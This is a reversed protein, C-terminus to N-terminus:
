PGPCSTGGNPHKGDEQSGRGEGLGQATGFRRRLREVRDAKEGFPHAPDSSRAMTAMRSPPATDSTILLRLATPASRAWSVQTTKANTSNVMETTKVKMYMKM